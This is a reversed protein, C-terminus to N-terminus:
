GSGGSPSRVSVAGTRIAELAVERLAARQVKGIDTLPFEDVSVVAEPWLHTGVEREQLYGVVAALDVGPDKSIVVACVREGLREDPIGVAAVQEILPHGALAAEVDDPVINLGGRIILEKTRGVIRLAGQEDIRGLDGALFWGDRNFAADTAAQDDFYGVFTGAGRTGIEGVEGRPAMSVRDPGFIAVENGPCPEGVTPDALEPPTEPRVFAVGQNETCGYMSIIEAGLESRLSAKLEPSTAAGGIIVYALSTPAPAGSRVASIVDAAHTPTLFVCRVDHSALLDLTAAPEFRGQFVAPAGSVFAPLFSYLWGANHAMPPVVLWPDDPGLGLEVIMARVASLKTNTTNLIGKPVGTTGSTFMLDLVADAHGADREPQWASRATARAATELVRDTVIRIDHAALQAELEAHADTITAAAGVRAAVSAVEGGRLSTKLPVIVAGLASVAINVIPYLCRNRLQVIVADGSLVGQTGLVDAVRTVAGVLEENTFSLHEDVLALRAPDRAARRRAIDLLTTDEWWGAARHATAEAVSTTTLYRRM